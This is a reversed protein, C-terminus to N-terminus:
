ARDPQGSLNKVIVDLQPIGLELYHDSYAQQSLAANDADSTETRNDTVGKTSHM